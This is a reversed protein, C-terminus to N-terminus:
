ATLEALINSLKKEVVSANFPKAIFDKAASQTIQKVREMTVEASIMIIECNAQNTKITKTLEIGDVDPLNIDLFILNIQKLKMERLAKKGTGVELINLVGLDRLMIRLYARVLDDDDVIMVTIEKVNTM